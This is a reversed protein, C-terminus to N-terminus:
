RSFRGEEVQVGAAEEGQAARRVAGLLLLGLEATPPPTRGWGGVRSPAAGHHTATVLDGRCGLAPPQSPDSVQLSRRPARRVGCGCWCQGGRLVRPQASNRGTESADSGPFPQLGPSAKVVRRPELLTCAFCTTLHQRGRRMKLTGWACPVLVYSGLPGLLPGRACCLTHSLAAAGRGGHLLGRAMCLGGRGQEGPGTQGLVARGLPLLVSPGDRRGDGGRPAVALHLGLSAFLPPVAQASRLGHLLAQVSMEPLRLRSPGKRHPCLGSCPWSRPLPAPPAPPAAPPVRACLRSRLAQQFPMACQEASKSHKSQHIHAQPSLAPDVGQHRSAALGQQGCETCGGCRTCPARSEQPGAHRGGRRRRRPHQAGPCPELLQRERDQERELQIRVAWHLAAWWCWWGALKAM